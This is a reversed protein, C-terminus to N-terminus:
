NKWGVGINNIEALSSQNEDHMQQAKQEAEMEIFMQERDVQIFDSAGLESAFGCFPCKRGLQKGLFKHQDMGFNTEENRNIREYAAENETAYFIKHCCPCEITVVKEGTKLAKDIVDDLNKDIEAM